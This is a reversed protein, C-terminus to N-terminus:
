FWKRGTIVYDDGDRVARTGLWTPNSGPYDPETMAFCSRVEGRVLPLLYTDRQPETGHHILIEMNGADPAQCNFVYHGIPSRGLVESVLAFDLLSLGAGGFERPVHPAWLGLQRARERKAELQPAIESFPRTFFDREIPELDERVFTHLSRIIAELPGPISFDM